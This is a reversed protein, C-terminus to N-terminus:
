VRAIRRPLITWGQQPFEFDNLVHYQGRLLGRPDQDSLAYCQVKHSLPLQRVVDSTVSASGQKPTHTANCYAGQILCLTRTPLPRQPRHHIWGHDRGRKTESYSSISADFSTAFSSDCGARTQETGAQHQCRDPSKDEYRM